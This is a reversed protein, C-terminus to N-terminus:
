ETPRIKPIKPAVYGAPLGKEVFPFDDPYQLLVHGDSTLKYPNGLPDRPIGRILGAANMETFSEPFRGTKQRYAQVLRELVPIDTDVQVARLHAVANGRIYKDHSTEFTATWLMRATELEGGHEAMQAALIKLFPHANPVRSGREFADAAGHYDKLDYYIYGLDYYLRWNDPNNQIGYEVLEIAKASGATDNSQKQSLFTAGFEYAPILHPDLQTTINLLPWLLDYRWANSHHKGGYYQVARTWYIDALLGSYGLSARKLLKPSSVYLVEELTANTRLEDVRRLLFVSGAGLVLLLALAIGTTIHRSRIM